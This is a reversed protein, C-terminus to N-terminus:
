SPFSWGAMIKFDPVDGLGFKIETFFRTGTKTPVGAGLILGGGAFSDGDALFLTAGGGAYPRWASGSIQFHYHLDVNIAFSTFDDGVGLELSPDFSLDPAVETVSYHGGVVFQSPDASFGVRPGIYNAAMAAGPLACLALAGLFVIRKM